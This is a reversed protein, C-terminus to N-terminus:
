HSSSGTNGRCGVEDTDSFTKWEAQSCVVSLEPYKEQGIYFVQSNWTHHGTQPGQSLVLFPGMKGLDWIAVFM